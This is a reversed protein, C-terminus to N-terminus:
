KFTQKSKKTSGEFEYYKDQYSKLMEILQKEEEFKKDTSQKYVDIQKM